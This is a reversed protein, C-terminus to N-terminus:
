CTMMPAVGTYEQVKTTDDQFTARVSVLVSTLATSGPSTPWHTSTESVRQTCEKFEWSVRFWHVLHKPPKHSIGQLLICRRAHCLLVDLLKVTQFRLNLGSHVWYFYSFPQPELNIWFVCHCYSGEFIKYMCCYKSFVPNFRNRFVATIWDLWM